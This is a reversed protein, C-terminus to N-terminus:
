QPPPQNVVPQGTVLNVITAKAGLAKVLESAAEGTKQQYLLNRVREFVEDLPLRRAPRKEEVNIIHYGSSTRVVPTIGGEETSFAANGFQPPAQERTFWGIEGGSPASPAESLERALEAFDAGALARQRADEARARTKQVTASDADLPLRIFIERARVQEAADFLKPNEDYFTTVEEDSVQITPSIQNEILVRTLEMERLYAKMEDFSMGFTALDSELAERGGAQQEVSRIMAALREEDAKFGARRAEQALLKQEVMRQMAMQALAEQDEANTQAGMQAAINRMTITIEGAHVQEGNVDLVAPNGEAVPAQAHATAPVVVAGALIVIFIM